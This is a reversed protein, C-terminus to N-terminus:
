DPQRSSQRCVLATDPRLFRRYRLWGKDFFSLLPRLEFDDLGNRKVDKEVLFVQRWRLKDFNILFPGFQCYKLPLWCRTPIKVGATAPFPPFSGESSGACILGGDLVPKAGQTILASEQMFSSPKYSVIHIFGSTFYRRTSDPWAKAGPFFGRGRSLIKNVVLPYSM